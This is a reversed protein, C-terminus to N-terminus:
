VCLQSLVPYQLPREWSKIDEPYFVFEDETRSVHCYVNISSVEDVVFPVYIIDGKRLEQIEEKTMM